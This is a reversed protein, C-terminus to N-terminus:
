RTPVPQDCWHTGTNKNVIDCKNNIEKIIYDLYKKDKVKDFKKSDTIDIVILDIGKKLCENVKLLDREKTIKLRDDGFIAEYHFIGNLEFAMKLSPIYIDLEYKDIVVSRDNFIIEFDYKGKLEEEIWIEIKSRNTGFDKNRNWDIGKCSYSCFFRNSENVLEKINRYVEKECVCCKVYNGTMKGKSMCSRSCYKLSPRRPHKTIGLARRVYKKTSSFESSCVECEFVIDKNKLVELNSIDFKPKM